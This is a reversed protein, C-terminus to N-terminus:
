NIYDQPYLTIEFLQNDNIDIFSVSITLNLTLYDQKLPNDHIKELFETEWLYIYVSLETDTFDSKEFELERFFYKLNVTEEHFTINYLVCNRSVFTPLESKISKVEAIVKEVADSIKKKETMTIAKDIRKRKDIQIGKDDLDKLLSHIKEISKKTQNEVYRQYVGIGLVIIISLILLKPFKLKGKNKFKKNLQFYIILGCIISPIICSRFERGVLYSQHQFYTGEITSYLFLLYLGNFILPLSIAHFWVSLKSEPQTTYIVFSALLLYLFLSIM